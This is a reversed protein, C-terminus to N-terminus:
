VQLLECAEDYGAATRGYESACVRALGVLQRWRLSERTNAFEETVTRYYKEAHLSGDESTSYKLLMDFVPRSEGGREGIRHVAAGALAQDRNCIAEEATALLAAPDTQSEVADFKLPWQEPLVNGSQGATHYAGVVLSVVSNRHNSVRAINRWANAADSAHVGVSDGHVSGEPKGDSIENGERGQDHLLLLNAAISMAEGVADPHYGEKLAQAAAEAAAVRNAGFITGALENIFTDDGPRNGLPQSLLQYEDLIRPVLGWLEPVNGNTREAENCCFRVSQRLLTHAYEEGVLDVALWARWALVVRHVNASDQVPYQVHNFMEGAPENAFAAFISEAGEYDASRTAQQLLLGPEPDTPKEGHELHHLVEADSGGFAHIRDTNRYLVKLVPLAKREAPLESAMHLSPALAMFSHYGIYDQGGFTRANALMGAAILTKLDVGSRIKDVLVRNLQNLPTDQMLAVLPEMDGFTIRDSDEGAFATSIGLDHALATGVSGVLM